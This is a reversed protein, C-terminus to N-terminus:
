SLDHVEDRGGSERLATVLDRVACTLDAIAAATGIQAEIICRSPQDVSGDLEHRLEEVRANAAETRASLEGTMDDLRTSRDAPM